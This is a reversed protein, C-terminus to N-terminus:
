KPPEIKIAPDYTFKKDTHSKIGGGTGDIIQRALLNSKPDVYLMGDGTFAGGPLNMKFAYALYDVGDLTKPGLCQAGKVYDPAVDDLNATFKGALTGFAEPMAHWSKGDGMWFKPGIKVTEIAKGNTSIRTRMANPPIMDASLTSDSAKATIKGDVHFPGSNMTRKLIDKLDQDCDAQASSHAVTLIFIGALFRFM